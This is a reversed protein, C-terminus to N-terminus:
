KAAIPSTIDEKLKFIYVMPADKTEEFGNPLFTVDEEPGFSRRGFSFKHVCDYIEDVTFTKGNHSFFVEGDPESQELISALMEINM